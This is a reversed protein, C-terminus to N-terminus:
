HLCFFMLLSSVYCFIYKHTCPDVPDAGVRVMSLDQQALDARVWDGLTIHFINLSSQVNSPMEKSLPHGSM